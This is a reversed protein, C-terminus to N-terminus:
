IRGLAARLHDVVLSTLEPIRDHLFFHGGDFLNLGRFDRSHCQWEALDVAPTVTDDVGGFTVLGMPLAPEDRYAYSHCLQFDARLSPLTLAMASADALLQAPVGALERVRDLFTEDPDAPDPMRSPAVGRVPWSAFALLSPPEDGAEQLLRTMRYGLMAGMSHGFIAYPVPDGDATAHSAARDARLCDVLYAAATDCDTFAPERHRGPRGPLRVARLELWSPLCAPWLRFMSPGAGACPLCYLHATAAPRPQFTLYWAPQATM